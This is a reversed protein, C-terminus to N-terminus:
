LLSLIKKPIDRCILHINDVKRYTINMLGLRAIRRTTLGTPAIGDEHGIIWKKSKGVLFIGLNMLTKGSRYTAMEWFTKHVM